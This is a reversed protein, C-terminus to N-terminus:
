LPNGTGTTGAPMSNSPMEEDTQLWVISGYVENLLPSLEAPLHGNCRMKIQKLREVHDPVLSRLAVAVDMLKAYVNGQHNKKVERYLTQALHEQHHEVVERDVLGERDPTYLLFTCFIAKEKDTLGLDNFMEYFVMETTYPTVKGFPSNEAVDRRIYTNIEPFRYVGHYYRSSNLTACVELAAGKFLTLQDASSLRRFEPLQKSFTAFKEIIVEMSVFCQQAMEARSTIERPPGDKDLQMGEIVYTGSPMHATFPRSCRKWFKDLDQQTTGCVIANFQETLSDVFTRHAKQDETEHLVNDKEDLEEKLKLVEQKPVRGMRVAASSMGLVLCKQYRCYQCKNRTGINVICGDPQGWYPCPKYDIKLRQTRRFFGKCGECSYVGYHMGSAKDSCIQCRIIDSYVPNDGKNREKRPKRRCTPKTEDCSSTCKLRKTRIPEKKCKCRVDERNPSEGRSSSVNWTQSPLEAKETMMTTTTTMTTVRDSVIEKTISDDSSSSSADMDEVDNDVEICHHEPKVDVFFDNATEINNMDSKGIRDEKSIRLGDCQITIADM